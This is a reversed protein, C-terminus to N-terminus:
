AYDDLLARVAAHARAGAEVRRLPAHRTGRADRVPARRFRHHFRGPDSQRAPECRSVDTDAHWRLHNRRRRRLVPRARFAAFIACLCARHRDRCLGGGHLVRDDGPYKRRGIEAGSRWLRDVSPRCASSSRTPSSAPGRMPLAGPHLVYLAGFLANIGVFVAALGLLFQWWPATLVDHYFDTWRGYDQGKIIALRGRSRSRMIDTPGPYRRRKDDDSAPEPM